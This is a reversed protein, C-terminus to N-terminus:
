ADRMFSIIESAEQEFRRLQGFFCGMLKGSQEGGRVM